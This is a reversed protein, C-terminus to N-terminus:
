LFIILSLIYSTFINLEYEYITPPCMLDYMFHYFLIFWSYVPFTFDAM